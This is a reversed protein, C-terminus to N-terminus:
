ARRIEVFAYKKKGRARGIVFALLVLLVAIGLGAALGAGAASEKVTDVDDKLTRLRSEIDSRDIPRDLGTQNSGKDNANTKALKSAKSM